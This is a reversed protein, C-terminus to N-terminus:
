VGMLEVKTSDSTSYDVHSRQSLEGMKAAHLTSYDSQHLMMPNLFTQYLIGLGGALYM